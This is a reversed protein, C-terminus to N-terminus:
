LKAEQGRRRVVGDRRADTPRVAAGAGVRGEGAQPPPFGFPQQPPFTRAGHVFPAPYRGAPALGPITGCLVSRRSRGAVPPSPLPSVTRYSRVAGATVGAARCVGGPALGFLFPAFAKPALAFRKPITDLDPREPLNSSAGPLRRGLPIATVYAPVGAHWGSGPKYAPQRTVLPTRRFGRRAGALKQRGTPVANSHLIPLVALHSSATGLRTQFSNEMFISPDICNNCFSTGCNGNSTSFEIEMLM